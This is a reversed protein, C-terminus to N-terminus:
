DRGLNEIVEDIDTLVTTSLIPGNARFCDVQSPSKAGVLVVDARNPALAWQSVIYPVSCNLELALGRLKDLLSHANDWAKGQFIPYNLRADQPAFQYDRTMHGALLGKMLVWYCVLAIKQSTAFSRLEILREQQFMNFPIQIATTACHMAFQQAQALDVNCVGINKAWGRNRIEQMASASEDLPVRLDPGHLYLLDLCSTELRELLIQTHAILTEPSANTVRERNSDWHQGVKSAIILESDPTRDNRHRRRAELLLRDSRGDYGYSFASDFFNIGMDLAADITQGSKTDNVDLSTIGAMPWCGLSLRSVPTSLCGINVYDM